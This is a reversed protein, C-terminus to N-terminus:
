SDDVYGALTNKEISERASKTILFNIVWHLVTYIVAISMISKQSLCYYIM